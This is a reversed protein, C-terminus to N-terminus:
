PRPQEQRQRRFCHCRDGDDDADETRRVFRHERHGHGGSPERCHNCESGETGLPQSFRIWGDPPNKNDNTRGAAVFAFECIWCSCSGPDFLATSRGTGLVARRAVDSHPFPAKPYRGVCPHQLTWRRQDLSPTPSLFISSNPLHHTQTHPHSPGAVAATAVLFSVEFTSQNRMTGVFSGMTTMWKLNVHKM